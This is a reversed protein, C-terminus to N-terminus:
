VEGLYQPGVCAAEADGSQALPAISTPGTTIGFSAIVYATTHSSRPITFTPRAHFICRSRRRTSVPPRTTIRTLPVGAPQSRYASLASAAAPNSRANAVASSDSPTRGFPRPNVSHKRTVACDYAQM